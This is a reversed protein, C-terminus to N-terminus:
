LKLLPRVQLNQLLFIPGEHYFAFLSMGLLALLQQGGGRANEQGCFDFMSPVEPEPPQATSVCGAARLLNSISSCHHVIKM